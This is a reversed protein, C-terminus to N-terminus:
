RDRRHRRDAGYSSGNEGSVIASLEWHSGYMALVEPPWVRLLERWGEMRAKKDATMSSPHRRYFVLPVPLRRPRAGTKLLRLYLDYEEWFFPRYGGARRVVQRRMMPGAALWSFVNRPNPRRRVSRKGSVEWYDPLFIDASDQCNFADLELSLADRDLWDDSDVRVIFQGQARELGENCAAALGRHRKLHIAVIRDRHRGLVERTSDTSGDDIVIVEYCQRPLSQSTLSGLCRGLFRGQNHTAVVVSVVPRWKM